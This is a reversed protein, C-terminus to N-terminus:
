VGTSGFGGAGRETDSLEDALFFEGRVIPVFMLQAIRDGPNVTYDKNSLNIMAVILEGRYDPDILGIGNSLTMGHKAALGSRACIVAAVNQDEYEIAIGTPIGAREGAGITVPGDLCAYLDAAASSATKYEPLVANEKLKKVKIKM